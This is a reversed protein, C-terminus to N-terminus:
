GKATEGRQFGRWYDREQTITASVKVWRQAQRRTVGGRAHEFGLEEYQEREYERAVAFEEQYDREDTNIM